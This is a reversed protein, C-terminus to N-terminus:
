VVSDPKKGLRIGPIKLVEEFTNNLGRQEIVKVAMKSNYEDMPSVLNGTEDIRADM